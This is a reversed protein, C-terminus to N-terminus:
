SFMEKCFQEELVGEILKFEHPDTSRVTIHHADTYLQIYSGGPRPYYLCPRMKFHVTEGKVDITGVIIHSIIKM